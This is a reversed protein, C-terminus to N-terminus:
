GHLIKCPREGTTPSKTRWEFLSQFSTSVSIRSFLKENEKKATIQQKKRSFSVLFDWLKLLFGLPGHREVRINDENDGYRDNYQREATYKEVCTSLLDEKIDDESVSITKGDSIIDRHRKTFFGITGEQLKFCYNGEHKEYSLQMSNTFEVYASREDCHYTAPELALRLLQLVQELAYLAWREKLMIHETLNCSEIFDSNNTPTNPHARVKVEVSELLAEDLPVPTIELVNGKFAIKIEPQSM